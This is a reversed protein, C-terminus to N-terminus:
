RSDPVKKKAPPQALRDELPGKRGMHNQSDVSYFDLATSFGGAPPDRAGPSGAAKVATPPHVSVM